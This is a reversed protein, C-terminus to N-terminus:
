KQRASRGRNRRAVGGLRLHLMEGLQKMEDNLWDAARGSQVTFWARHEEPWVTIELTGSTRGKKVHWHICGPFKKLSDRLSVRLGREAIAEDIVPVLKECDIKAPLPIETDRM